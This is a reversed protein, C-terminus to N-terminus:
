HAPPITPINCPDSIMAKPYAQKLDTKLRDRDIGAAPKVRVIAPYTDPDAVRLVDPADAFKKRFREYSQQKTEGIPDVVHPDSKLQEAGATMEADTPFGVEIESCREAVPESPQSMLVVTVVAALMVAVTAVWLLSRQM